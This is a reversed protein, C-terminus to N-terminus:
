VRSGSGTHLLTTSSVTLTRGIKIKIEIRLIHITVNKNNWKGGTMLTWRKKKLPYSIYSEAVQLYSTSINFIFLLSSAGKEPGFVKHVATSNNLGHIHQCNSAAHVTVSCLTYIDYIGPM